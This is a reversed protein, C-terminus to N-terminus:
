FELSYIRIERSLNKLENTRFFQFKLGGHGQLQDWVVGAILVRGPSALEQLRAAINIADGFVNGDPTILVDGSNVGVRFEMRRSAHLPSNLAEIRRQWSIASTVASFASTFLIM